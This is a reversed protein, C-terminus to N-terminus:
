QITTSNQSCLQHPIHQFVEAVLGSEDASKNLKLKEVAGILEQLTWPEEGLLNPQLPTEPTGAFLTELM